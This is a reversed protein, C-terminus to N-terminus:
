GASNIWNSLITAAADPDEKVMESLDDKLSHGSQFRRKLRTSSDDVVEEEASETVITLGGGTTEVAIPGSSVPVTRVMSRLMLLIFVALGMM